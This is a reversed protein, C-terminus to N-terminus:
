YQITGTDDSISGQCFFKFPGMSERDLKSRRLFLRVFVVKLFM